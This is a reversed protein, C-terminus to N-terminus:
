IKRWTRLIVANRMVIEGPDINYGDAQEYCGLLVINGEGYGLGRKIESEADQPDDIGVACTGPLEDTSPCDNAADWDLSNRAIDGIKYHEGPALTRLGYYNYDQKSM